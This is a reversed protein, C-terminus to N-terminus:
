ASRSEGIGREALRVQRERVFDGAPPAIPEQEGDPDHRENWTQLLAAYEWYSLERAQAPGIGM